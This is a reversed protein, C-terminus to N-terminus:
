TALDQVVVTETATEVGLLHRLILPLDRQSGM